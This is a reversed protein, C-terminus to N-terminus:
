IAVLVIGVLFVALWRIHSTTCDILAFRIFILKELSNQLAKPLPMHYPDYIRM